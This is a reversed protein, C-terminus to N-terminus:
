VPVDKRGKKMPSGCLPCPKHAAQMDKSHMIRTWAVCGPSGCLWAPVSQTRQPQAAGGSGAGAAGAGSAAGGSSGTRGFTRVKGFRGPDPGSRRAGYEARSAADSASTDQGFASLLFRSVAAKKGRLAAPSSIFLEEKARTVAVYALRREEELAELYGAEGEAGVRTDRLSDAGLASSHPLTGESAGILFVAPFELGKSKHITMLAVRSGQAQSKVAATQRNKLLMDDVFALFAAISDFRGASTELEDLMEKLMERHSTQESHEGAQIYADYFSQRIQTVAAAPVLGKLSRIVELRQRIKDLQFEKLGPLTLLHVLPGKKPRGADTERIHTMGKDRNIYLTPLVSQMADFDRRNISLRLHDLVPKVLWHEYLLRGDGYDIHPIDRMVLQELVARNSSSSRYLVAFDGYGRRQSSVERQIFDVIEKAEDDASAPRLYVPQPAGGRSARLTKARRQKNHRIVENGLGVIAPVSRYNIDLTVVRARPYLREFELIFESRAGNFSYITQDDDGVVMLNNRPAAIMKVVEYQLLNTDQFEDVMLHTFRRRLRELLEPRQKLLAHAGTLVDDFDIRGTEEKWAEYRLLIRKMQRDADSKEPLQRATMLNVKYSSLLALLNEPPYADQMGLERMIQQLQIHQRRTDGFIEKQGGQSFLLWLCFSHFTRAQIRGAEYPDIGPLAAIRERMEAAAKSSFTLLLIGSPDAGRVNLLYGTRCVLTSTKGSGAGALTLLPGETCRVAETQAANLSIGAEALARFYGTERADASRNGAERKAQAVEAKPVKAATSAGFPKNEFRSTTAKNM